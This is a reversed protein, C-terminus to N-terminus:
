DDQHSVYASDERLTAAHFGLRAPVTIVFHIRLFFPKTIRMQSFHSFVVGVASELILLTRGELNCLEQVKNLTRIELVPDTITKLHLSPPCQQVTDM